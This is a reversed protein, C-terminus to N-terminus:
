EGKPNFFILDSFPGSNLIEDTLEIADLVVTKPYFDQEIKISANSVLSGVMKVIIEQRISLNEM